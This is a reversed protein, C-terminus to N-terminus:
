RSAAASMGNPLVSHAAVPAVDLRPLNGIARYVLLHLCVTTYFYRFDAPTRPHTAALAAAMAKRVEVPDFASAVTLFQTLTM